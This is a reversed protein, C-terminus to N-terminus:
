PAPPVNLNARFVNHPDWRRKTEALRRGTAGPYAAALVQPDGDVVFGGYIAEEGARLDDALAQAWPREADALPPTPAMAMVVGLVPQGRHAFATADAPVDAVAGGLVRLQVARMLAGPVQVQEVVRGATAVDVGPAFFPRTVVSAAGPPAPELLDCYRATRVSDALVGGARAAVDRVGALGREADEVPGSWCVAAMVVPTGYLDAPLHPLPPCPCVTLIASLERPAALALAVLEAVSEATAPLVVTGGVVTPLDHLAFRFRTVVGLNGGGGRLGWFLDPHHEADALVVEGAATVVEAAILSDTTLGYRRCLLGFGGGLTIGGVGVTRADGFPTVLGHEGVVDAYAGATVGGGAWATRTGPDVAVDAIGRLDITLAGDARGLGLTSHGGARVSLEAGADAAFRVARAVGAADAPRVVASPRRDVVTPIQRAEDYGPDGPVLVTTGDVHLAERVAAPSLTPITM